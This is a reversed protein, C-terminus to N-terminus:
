PSGRRMRILALDLFSHMLIARFHRGTNKGCSLQIWDATLAIGFREDRMMVTTMILLELICNIMSLRLYGNGMESSSLDMYALRRM